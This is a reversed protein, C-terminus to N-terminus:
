SARLAKEARAVFVELLKDAKRRITGDGLTAIRGVVAYNGSFSILTGGSETSPELSVGVEVAIRSGVQRDEGSASLRVFEEPRVDSLRVDLDARLKFPGVRDAIVARYRALYQEVEVDEIIPIWSALVEVDTLIRWVEAVTLPSTIRRDFKATAIIM